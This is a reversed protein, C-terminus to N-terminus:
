YLHVGIPQHSGEHIQVEIIRVVLRGSQSTTLLEAKTAATTRRSPEKQPHSSSSPSPFSSPTHCKTVTVSPVIAISTMIRRIQDFFSFLLYYMAGDPERALDLSIRAIAIGASYSKRSDVVLAEFNCPEEGEVIKFDLMVM